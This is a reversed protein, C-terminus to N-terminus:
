KNQLLIKMTFEGYPITVEQFGAAYSSLEYPHFYFMIGEKTLYFDSEFDTEERVTDIAYEWFDDPNQGIYEAFYETVIDKLEEESNGIIDEMSLRQGTQLDFTYGIRLPMGHAGGTYDYDQQCFSIYHEDFWSIESLSSSYSCHFINEEGYEKVMEEMWEVNSNEYEMNENQKETLYRNIEEAGAFREDVQLWELDTETLLMDPITQSYIKEHYTQITGVEGIGSDYFAEGLIEEESPNELSRRMLYLKYDSAGAYYLYGNKVVVDTMYSPACNDMGKIEDQVFIVNRDDGDLSVKEYVYKEGMDESEETTYQVYVYDNDMTIVHVSGEIMDDDFTITRCVSLTEQDILYMTKDIMSLFYKENYSQLNYFEEPLAEEKGTERDAKM